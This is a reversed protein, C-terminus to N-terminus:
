LYRKIDPIFCIVFPYFFLFLLFCRGDILSLHRYLVRPGVQPQAREPADIRVGVAVADIDVARTSEVVVVHGVLESDSGSKVTHMPMLTNMYPYFPVGIAKGTVNMQKTPVFVM